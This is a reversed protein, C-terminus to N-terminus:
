ATVKAPVRVVENSYGRVVEWQDGVPYFTAFAGDHGEMQWVPGALGQQRWIRYHFGDARFEWGAPFRPRGGDVARAGFTVGCRAAVVGEGGWYRAAFDQGQETPM